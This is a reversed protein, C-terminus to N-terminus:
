VHLSSGNDDEIEISSSLCPTTSSCSSSAFSLPSSPSPSPSTSFSSSSTFAFTVLLDVFAGIIYGHNQKENVRLYWSLLEELSEWDKLGHAEAMEEMSRRFDVYPDESEMSLVVSEKFPFGGGKAEELISSTEGPEFFLRESRLGRIVTEICEGGSEESSGSFSESESSNTSWLEQTDVVDSYASNLTKFMDSSGVRFSLTKPQTCYPWQWPFRADVNKLLFPFKTRKGM